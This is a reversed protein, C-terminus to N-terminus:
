CSPSPYVWQNQFSDYKPNVQVRIKCGNEYEVICNGNVCNSRCRIERTKPRCDATNSSESQNRIVGNIGTWKIVCEDDTSTHRACNDLANRKADEPSDAINFEIRTTSQAVAAYGLTDIAGAIKCKAGKAKHKNCNKMAESEAQKKSAERVSAGWAGDDATALAAWDAFSPTSIILGFVVSFLLWQSHKM